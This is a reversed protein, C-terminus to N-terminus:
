TFYFPLIEPVGFWLGAVSYRWLHSASLLRHLHRHFCPGCFRALHQERHPVESGRPDCCVACWRDAAPNPLIYNRAYRYIQTIESINFDCCPICSYLNMQWCCKFFLSIKLCQDERLIPCAPSRQGVPIGSGM